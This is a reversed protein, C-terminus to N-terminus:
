ASMFDPVIYWVGDPGKELHTPKCGPKVVGDRIARDRYPKSQKTM